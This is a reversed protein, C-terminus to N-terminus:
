EGRIGQVIRRAEDFTRVGTIEARQSFEARIEPACVVKGDVLIALAGGRHERTLRAMREAGEQTFEIYVSSVGFRDVGVSAKAIDENTAEAEEYLYVKEGSDGLNAEILGEVRQWEARRFEVLVKPAKHQEVDAVPPSQDRSEVDASSAAGRDHQSDQGACGLLAITVLGFSIASRM